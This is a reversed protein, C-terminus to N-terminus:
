PLKSTTDTKTGPSAQDRMFVVTNQEVGARCRKAIHRHGELREGPVANVKNV